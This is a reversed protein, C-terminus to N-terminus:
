HGALLAPWRERGASTAEEIQARLGRRGRLEAHRLSLSLGREHFQRSVQALYPWLLPEGGLFSVHVARGTACAYDCLKEGLTLASSLDAQARPRRLERSYACFPCALDCHETIRWIVTLPSHCAVPTL